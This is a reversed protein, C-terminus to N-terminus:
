CAEKGGAPGTSESPVAQCVACFSMESIVLALVAPLRLAWQLLKSACASQEFLGTCDACLDSIMMM